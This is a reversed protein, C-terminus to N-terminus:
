FGLVTDLMPSRTVISVEHQLHLYHNITDLITQSVDALSEEHLTDAVMDSFQMLVCEGSVM